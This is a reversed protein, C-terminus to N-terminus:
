IIDYKLVAMIATRDDDSNGTDNDVDNFEYYATTKRGLSQTYGLTISTRDQDTADVSNTELHIYLSGIDVHVLFSDDDDQTQLGLGLSADGLAIGTLAFGIIDEDNGASGQATDSATNQLAVGLTMDGIGFSAGLEIQDPAEEEVDPTFYFSAGFSVAGSSGAYSVANDTRGRYNVM